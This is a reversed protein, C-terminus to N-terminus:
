RPRQSVAASVPARSLPPRAAIHAFGFPIMPEPAPFFSCHPERGAVRLLVVEEESAALIGPYTQRLVRDIDCYRDEVRGAPSSESQVAVRDPLRFRRASRLRKLSTDRARQQM